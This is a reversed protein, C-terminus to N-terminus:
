PAEHYLSLLIIIVRLIRNEHLDIIEELSFM